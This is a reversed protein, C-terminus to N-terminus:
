RGKQAGEALPCDKRCSKVVRLASWPHGAAQRGLRGCDSAKFCGQHRYLSERWGHGARLSSEYIANDPLNLKPELSPRLGDPGLAAFRARIANQYLSKRGVRCEAMLTSLESQDVYAVKNREIEYTLARCEGQDSGSLNSLLRCLNPNGNKCGVRERLRAQPICTLCPLPCAARLRLHQSHLM